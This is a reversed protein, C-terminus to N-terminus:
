NNRISGIMEKPQEASEPDVVGVMDDVHILVVGDKLVILHVDHTRFVVRIHGFLFRLLVDNKIDRFFFILCALDTVERPRADDRLTVLRVLAHVERDCEARERWLWSPKLKLGALIVIKDCRGFILAALIVAERFIHAHLEFDAALFTRQM